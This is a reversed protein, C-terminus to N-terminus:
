SGINGSKQTQKLHLQRICILLSEQDTAAQVNYPQDVGENTSNKM